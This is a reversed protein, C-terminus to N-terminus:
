EDQENKEPKSETLTEEVKGVESTFKEEEASEKLLEEETKKSFSRVADKLKDKLFRFM